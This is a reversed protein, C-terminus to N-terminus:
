RINVPFRWSVRPAEVQRVIVFQKYERDLLNFSGIEGSGVTLENFIHTPLLSELARVLVGPVNSNSMRKDPCTNFLIWKPVGGPYCRIDLPFLRCCFPREQYITCRRKVLDLMQCNPTQRSVYFLEGNQSLGLSFGLAKMSEAESPLVWILGTTNCCHVCGDCHVMKSQIAREVPALPAYLESLKM